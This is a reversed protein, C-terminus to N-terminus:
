NNQAGQDIWREILQIQEEKLPRSPPMQGGAPIEAGRLMQVLISNAADSTAIVPGYDGSTMVTDYTSVNFGGKLARTHCTACRKDLIPKVDQAFGPNAVAAANESTGPEEPPTAWSEIFDVVARIEPATLPGGYTAGFAQMGLGPQGYEIIRYITDRSRTALFDESNLANTFSGPNSTIEGGEGDVGHCEACHEAFLAGGARARAALDGGVTIAEVQPPTAIVAQITLFILGAVILTIAITAVPRNLPHRSPGRDFFPLGFLLFAVLLGLAAISVGELRGPFYKLLQFAWMFYWEPRPVYSADSPDAPPENPVGRLVALGILLVFVALSVVADKAISDPFFLEGDRKKEKYHELYDRKERDNM